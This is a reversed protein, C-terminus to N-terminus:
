TTTSQEPGWIEEVFIGGAVDCNERAGETTHVLNKNILDVSYLLHVEQYVWFHLYGAVDAYLHSRLPWSTM